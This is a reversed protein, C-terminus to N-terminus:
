NSLGHHQLVAIVDALTAPTSTVRTGVVQNGNISLAPSTGGGFSLLISCSASSNYLTVGGGSSVVGIDAFGSNSSDYAHFGQAWQFSYFTSDTISLGAHYGTKADAANNITTTIGNLTLSLLGNTITVGASTLVVSGLPGYIGVGSASIYVSNSGHAITVGPSAGAATLTITNVPSTYNDSLTIGSAGAHLAAGTTSYYAVLGAATLGLQGTSASILVGTSSVGVSNTGHAVSIGTSAATVTNQPSAQNDALIIGASGIEVAAGTAANEFILTGSILATGPGINLNNSVDSYLPAAV